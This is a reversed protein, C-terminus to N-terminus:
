CPAFAGEVMWRLIFFVMLNCGRVEALDHRGHVQFRGDESTRGLDETALFACSDLNALDIFHLMGNKGPPLYNFPDTTEACFAKLTPAPTFWETGDSYAQSCLETMGYESFIAPVKFSQKLTSHLENRTMEKRRGKMGGTEMIHVGELSMPHQEAFDLLAFSVGLLLTKEGPKRGKLNEALQDFENLFFGSEPYESQEIFHSAMAVLSSGGRELYSPLLALIRWDNVQGFQQTFGRETNDLYFQLDKLFHRSPTQGTTGSSTFEVEPLWDGTKITLTKFLQIPLFPIDTLQKIQAPKKGLLRLFESYVPNYRAQYQFIDLALVDFKSAEITTIRRLLNERESTQM